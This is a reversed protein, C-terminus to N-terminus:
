ARSRSQCIIMIRRVTCPRGLSSNPSRVSGMSRRIRRSPRCVAARAERSIRSLGVRSAERRVAGPDISPKLLDVVASQSTARGVDPKQRLRDRRPLGGVREPDDLQNRELQVGLEIALDQPPARRQHQFELPHGVDRRVHRAVPHRGKRGVGRQNRADLRANGLGHRAIREIRVLSVTERPRRAGPGRRRLQRCRARREEGVIRM